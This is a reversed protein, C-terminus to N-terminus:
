KPEFIARLRERDSNRSIPFLNTHTQGALALNTHVLPGSKQGAFGAFPVKSIKLQSNELKM